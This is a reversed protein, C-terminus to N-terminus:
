LVSFLLCIGSVARNHTFHGNSHSIWSQVLVSGCFVAGSITNILLQYEALKRVHWENEGPCQICIGYLLESIIAM